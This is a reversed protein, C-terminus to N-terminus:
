EWKRTSRWKSRHSSRVIKMQQATLPYTILRVLITFVIIALGFNQGLFSYIVLLTNIM